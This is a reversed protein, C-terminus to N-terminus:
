RGQMENKSAQLTSSGPCRHGGARGGPVSRQASGGGSEAACGHNRTLNPQKRGAAVQLPRSMSSSMRRLDAAPSAGLGESRSDVAAVAVAAAEVGRPPRQASPHHAQSPPPQNACTAGRQSCAVIGLAPQAQRVLAGNCPRQRLRCSLLHMCGTGGAAAGCGRQQARTVAAAAICPHPPRPCALLLLPLLLARLLLSSSLLVLSVVAAKVAAVALHPNCTSPPHLTGGHQLCAHQLSAPSAIGIQSAIGTRSHQTDSGQWCDQRNM